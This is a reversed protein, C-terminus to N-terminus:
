FHSKQTTIRVKSNFISRKSKSKKNLLQWKFFRKSPSLFNPSTASKRFHRANHWPAKASGVLSPFIPYEEELNTNKINRKKKQKNQNRKSLKSPFFFIHLGSSTASVFNAASFPKTKLADVEVDFIIESNPTSWEYSTKVVNPLCWFAHCKQCKETEPMESNEDALARILTM